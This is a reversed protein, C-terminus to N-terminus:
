FILFIFVSIHRLFRPTLKFGLTLFNLLILFHFVEIKQKSIPATIEKIFQNIIFTVKIM